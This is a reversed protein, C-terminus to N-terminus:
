FQSIFLAFVSIISFIICFKEFINAIVNKLIFFTLLAPLMLVLTMYQM